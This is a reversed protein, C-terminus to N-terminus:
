LFPSRPVPTGNPQMAVEPYLFTRPFLWPSDFDGPAGAPDPYVGVPGKLCGRHRRRKRAGGARGRM